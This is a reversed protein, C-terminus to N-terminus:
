RALLLAALAALLAALAGGLGAAAPAAGNKSKSGGSGVLFGNDTILPLDEGLVSAGGSPPLEKCTKWSAVGSELLGALAGTFGANYDITVENQVYNTRSDTYKDSKDPGGVLAGYLTQV